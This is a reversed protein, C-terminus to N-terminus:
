KIMQIDQEQLQQPTELIISVELDKFFTAFYILPDKGIFGNGINEHRDVHSELDKKSDNLHVLKIHQIGIKKEFLKIYKGILKKSRLDYGSAFIHCTDICLGFRQRISENKNHSLKKYFYALDDLMFCMESGQGSSTELLIKVHSYNKTQQHVYLLCSYMNNLAEEKSLSLQKGLHVVVSRAGIKAAQEIELIFQKVWWSYETWNKSCNITYSIHVVCAMKLASIHKVFKDYANSKAMPEVFLQIMNGGLKHVRDLEDSLANISSDIHIGIM